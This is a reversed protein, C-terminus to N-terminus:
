GVAELAKTARERTVQNQVKDLVAQLGAKAREKGAPDKGLQTAAAVIAAAAENQVEPDDLYPQLVDLTQPTPLTGWAALVTWKEEKRTALGNATNLMETKKAVDKEDRALRVYGKLGVDRQAADQGQALQLLQPAAEGTSWNGLVRIAEARVAEDPSAVGAVVHELAAPTGIQGLGRYLVPRTEPTAGNLAQVIAPLVGDKQAASIRIVAEEAAQREDRETSKQLAALILPLQEANGLQVLANLSAVRLAQNEDQINQKALDVAQLAMRATLLDILQARMAPEAGPAAAALASDAADNRLSTLSAKAAAALEENDSGLLAALTTIDEAEGLQGLAQAAALKVPQEANELAHTLAARAAADKRKGLGRALAVQGETSLGPLAEAYLATAGGGQTEAVMQSAFDRSVSDESRLAELVMDVSVKPRLHVLGRFAGMRVHEPAQSSVLSRYINAAERKNGKQALRAAATVLGEGTTAQVAEPAKPLFEALTTAAEVTGIRGLAGADQLLAAIADVAGKDGRVGLSTVVGIRQLGTTGALAERLAQDVAPSEMSELAFRALSSLEANPLLAALAPISKESGIRKLGRCAAQKAAFDGEGQLVAILEDENQVKDASVERAPPEQAYGGFAAGVVLAVVSCWQMPKM